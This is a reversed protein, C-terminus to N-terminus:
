NLDVEEKSYLSNVLAENLTSYTHRITNMFVGLSSNPINKIELLYNIKSAFLVKCRCCAYPVSFLKCIIADNCFTQCM